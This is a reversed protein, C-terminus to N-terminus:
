REGNENYFSYGPVKEQLLQKQLDLITAQYANRSEEYVWREHCNEHDHEPLLEFSSMGLDARHRLEVMLEILKDRDDMTVVLVSTM